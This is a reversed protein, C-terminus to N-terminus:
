SYLSTWQQTFLVLRQPFSSLSHIQSHNTLPYPWREYFSSLIEDFLKSNTRHTKVFTNMNPHISSWLVSHLGSHLAIPHTKFQRSSRMKHTAMDLTIQVNRHPLYLHFVFNSCAFSATAFTPNYHFVMIPLCHSLHSEMLPHLSLGTESFNM